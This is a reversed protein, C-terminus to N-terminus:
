SLFSVPRTSTVLQMGRHRTTNKVTRAQTLECQQYAPIEAVVSLSVHRPTLAESYDSLRASLYTTQAAERNSYRTPTSNPCRGSVLIKPDMLCHAHRFPRNGTTTPLFSMDSSYLM